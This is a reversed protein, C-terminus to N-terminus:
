HCDDLIIVSSQSIVVNNSSPVPAVPLPATTPAPPPTSKTQPSSPSQTPAAGSPPIYDKFAAVDEAEDVTVM